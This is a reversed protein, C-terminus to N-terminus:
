LLGQMGLAGSIKGLESELTSNIDSIVQNVAAAVLDELMELDDVDVVEPDIKIEKVQKKGLMVIKVANGGSTATFEREEIEEQKTAMDTQAQQAQKLMNQMDGKNYGYPMRAKM